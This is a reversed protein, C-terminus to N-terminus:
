RAPCYRARLDSAPAPGWRAISAAVEPSAETWRVYGRWSTAICLGCHGEDIRGADFLRRLAVLSSVKFVRALRQIETAVPADARLDARVAELPALVEAAVPNCRSRQFSELGSRTVQGTKACVCNVRVNVGCDIAYIIPKARYGGDIAV